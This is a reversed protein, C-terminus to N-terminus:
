RAAADLMRREVTAIIRSSYRGSVAAPLARLVTTVKGPPGPWAPRGVMRTMKRYHLDTYLLM